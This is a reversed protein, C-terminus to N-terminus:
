EAGQIPPLGACGSLPHGGSTALESSHSDQQHTFGYLRGKPRHFLLVGKPPKAVVKGRQLPPVIPALCHAVHYRPYAYLPKNQWRFLPFDPAAPYPTAVLPPWNMPINTKSILLVLCGSKRALSFRCGRQHSAGGGEGGCNSQAVFPFRRLTCALRRIEGLNCMRHLSHVTSLLAGRPHIKMLQELCPVPHQAGACRPPLPVRNTPSCLSRLITHCAECRPLPPATPVL